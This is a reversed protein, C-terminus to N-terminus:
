GRGYLLNALWGRGTALPPSPHRRPGASRSPMLLSEALITLM